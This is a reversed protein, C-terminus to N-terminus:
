MHGSLDPDDSTSCWGSLPTVAIEFFPFLEVQGGRVVFM